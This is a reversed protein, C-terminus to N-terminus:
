PVRSYKTENKDTEVHDSNSTTKLIVLNRDGDLYVNSNVYYINEQNDEDSTEHREEAILVGKDDITATEYAKFGDDDNQEVLRKKGDLIHKQVIPFGWGYDYSLTLQDCNTPTATLVVMTEHDDSVWKYKGSFDPCAYTPILTALTLLFLM